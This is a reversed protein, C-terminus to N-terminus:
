GGTRDIYALDFFMSRFVICTIFYLIIEDNELGQVDRPIIPDHLCGPKQRSFLTTLNYIVMFMDSIKDYRALHIPLSTKDSRFIKLSNWRVLHNCYFYKNFFLYDGSKVSGWFTDNVFIDWQDRFNEWLFKSWSTKFFGIKEGNMSFWTLEKHEKLTWSEISTGDLLVTICYDHFPEDSSRSVQAAGFGSDEQETSSIITFRRIGKDEIEGFFSLNLIDLKQKLNCHSKRNIERWVSDRTKVILDSSIDSLSIEFNNIIYSIKQM